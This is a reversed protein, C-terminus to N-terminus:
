DLLPFAFANPPYRLQPTNGLKIEDIWPQIIKARGPLDMKLCAELYILVATRQQKQLMLDAVHMSPSTVGWVRGPLNISRLLLKAALDSRGLEFAAMAANQQSSHILEAYRVLTEEKDRIQWIWEGATLATQYQKVPMSSVQLWSMSSYAPATQAAILAQRYVAEHDTEDYRKKNALQQVTLANQFALSFDKARLADDVAQIWLSINKEPGAKKFTEAASMMLPYQLHEPIRDALYKRLNRTSQVLADNQNQALNQRVEELLKLETKQASLPLVFVLSLWCFSRMSTRLITAKLPRQL